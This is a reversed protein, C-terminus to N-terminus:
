EEGEKIIIARVNEGELDRGVSIRGSEDVTKDKKVRVEDEVEKIVGALEPTDETKVFYEAM